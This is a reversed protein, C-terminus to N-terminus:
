HRKRKSSLVSSAQKDLVARGHLADHPPPELHAPIFTMDDGGLLRAIQLTDQRRTHLPISHYSHPYSSTREMHQICTRVNHIQKAFKELPLSFGGSAYRFPSHNHNIYPTNPPTFTRDKARSRHM